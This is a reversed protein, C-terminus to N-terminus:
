ALHKLIVEKIFVRGKGSKLEKERAIAEAKSQFTETYILVWPRGRVTWGKSSVNHAKIRAELNSTLGVYTRKIRASYLIYVHFSM